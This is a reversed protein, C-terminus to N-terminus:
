LESGCLLSLLARLLPNQLDSGRRHAAASSGDAVHHGVRAIAFGGVIEDFIPTDGRLRDTVGGATAV